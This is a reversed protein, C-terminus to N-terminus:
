RVVAFSLARPTASGGTNRASLVARYSGPKLARGRIRGTFPIGDFGAPENTRTLTGASVTRKCARAHQRRLKATPAVCKSGKRLGKVKHTIAIRVRAPASLTFRFTTGVPARALVPTSRSGARFRRHTLRADSITPAVGPPLTTLITTTTNTTSTTITTNTSTPSSKVVASLLLRYGNRTNNPAATAGDALSPLQYYKTVANADSTDFMLASSDNDLGILDGAKVPLSVAFTNTGTALTQAPSTGAGTYQGNAAPRLVRLKVSGSGSGSNISFSTVTGDFPVQLEPSSSNTFPLYTCNISAACINGSPAGNPSGLTVTAQNQAGATGIATAVVAGAVLSALLLTLQRARIRV